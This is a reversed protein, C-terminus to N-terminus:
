LPGWNIMHAIILFIAAVIYWIIILPLIFRIWKTWSVSAIALAAMFYGSTPYLINTFGDGFQFALITTQRTVETIDALGVMIPMTVAAQGSGSPILFNLVMQVIMMFVPVISPPVNEILLGLSYVITDMIQGEILLVSIARAIGVVLAGLLINQIGENFSEAIKSPKLGAILGVAIAMFIYLGALEIFYWNWQLLAYLMFVFSLILVVAAIVQRTTAKLEDDPESHQSFQINKSDYVLSLEPNARVKKAYRWIYMIGIALIILLVIARFQYGSYLPLQAIAQSLGVTAPIAVGATFGAVTSVLVIALATIKDFGLKLILPLIAPLYILSLEVSGTITTFICFPIMLIPIVLIGKNSFVSTLKNVGLDILGTIEVVRFMGGIAMIGFVIAISQQIGKPVAFMFELLGVPNSEMFTFTDPQIMQAGNPAEVREFQGAPVAYTALAALAILVFLIVYIHPIREKKKANVAVEFNIKESKLEVM